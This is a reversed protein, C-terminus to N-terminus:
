EAGEFDSTTLKIEEEIIDKAYVDKICELTTFFNQDVSNINHRLATVFFKNGYLLNDKKMYEKNETNQPMHINIVDGIKINTNGPITM